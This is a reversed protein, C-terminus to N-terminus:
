EVYIPLGGRKLYVAICWQQPDNPIHEIQFSCFKSAALRGAAGTGEVHIALCDPGTGLRHLVSLAFIDRGDFPQGVAILKVRHLLGPHLFDYRLEAVTLRAEHHCRCGKQRFDGIGGILIDVVVDDVDAAAGSVVPHTFGDM